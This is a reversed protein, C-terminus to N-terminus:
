ESSEELDETEDALAEVEEAHEVLAASPTEDDDELDDDYEDDDAELDDDDAAEADDVDDEDAQISGREADDEDDDEEQDDLWDLFICAALHARSKYRVGDIYEDLRELIEDPMRWKVIAM